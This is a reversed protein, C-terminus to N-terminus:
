AALVRSFTDLARVLATLEELHIAMCHVVGLDKEVHLALDQLGGYVESLAHLNDLEAALGAYHEEAPLRVTLRTGRARLVSLLSDARARAFGSLFQLQVEALGGNELPLPPRERFREAYDALRMSLRRNGEWALVLLARFRRSALQEVGPQM